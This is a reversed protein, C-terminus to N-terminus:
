EGEIGGVNAAAEIGPEEYKERLKAHYSQNSQHQAFEGPRIILAVPATKLLQAEVSVFGAGVEDEEAVGTKLGEFEGGARLHGALFDVFDEIGEDFFAEGVDDLFARLEEAGNFGGEGDGAEDSTALGSETLFEVFLRAVSGAEGFIEGTGVRGGVAFAAGEVVEADNRVGVLGGGLIAAEQAFDAVLVDFEGFRGISDIGETLFEDALSEGATDADAEENFLGGEVGVVAAAEFVVGGGADFDADRGGKGHLEGDEIGLGAEDGEEVGDEGFGGPSGDDEVM